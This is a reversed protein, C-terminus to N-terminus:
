SKAAERRKAKAKAIGRRRAEDAKQARFADRVEAVTRYPSTRGFDIM